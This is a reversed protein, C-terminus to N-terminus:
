QADASSAQSDQAKLLEQEQIAIKNRKDIIENYEHILANTAAVRDKYEAVAANFGPVAANYRDIQKAQLWGDMEERREQLATEDAAIQDRNADIQKRIAELQADYAEVQQQRQTFASKYQGHYAVIQRRNTFYQSYYEELERPLSSVETGFISHMENPLESEELQKYADLKKLLTGDTITEAYRHLLADIRERERSGLRDYAQHLMEHAATVQTIGDLRADSIKYIHIGLRDGKYCGLVAVEQSADPCNQNFSAKGELAPRNVYFLRQAYPTFTAQEAIQKVESSPTYGRLRIWDLIRDQRSWLLIGAAILFLLFLSPWLRKVWSM